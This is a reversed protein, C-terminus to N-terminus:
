RAARRGLLLASSSARRTACKPLPWDRSPPIGRLLTGRAGCAARVGDGAVGVQQEGPDAAVPRRVADRTGALADAAALLVEERMMLSMRLKLAFRLRAAHLYSMAGRRARRVDHVRYERHHLRLGSGLLEGEVLRAVHERDSRASRAFTSCIRRLRRDFATFNVWLPPEITISAANSLSLVVSSTRSVPTPM